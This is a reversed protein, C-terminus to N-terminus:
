KAADRAIATAEVHSLGASIMLVYIYQFTHRSNM